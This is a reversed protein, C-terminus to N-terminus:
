RKLRLALLPCANVARRAHRREKPGVESELGTRADRGFSPFGWEDLSILEPAAEACVGRGQCRIPNLKMKM